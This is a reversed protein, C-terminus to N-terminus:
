KVKLVVVTQDDNQDENQVFSDVEAFIQKAIQEANDNASSASQVCDTTRDFGYIEDGKNAEVIGDSCFVMVDGKELELETTAYKSHPM